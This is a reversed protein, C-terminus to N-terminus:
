GPTWSRRLQTEVPWALAGQPRRGGVPRQRNGPLALRADGRAAGGRGALRSPYVGVKETLTRHERELSRDAGKGQPLIFDLM